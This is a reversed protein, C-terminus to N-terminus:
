SSLDKSDVDLEKRIESYENWWAKVLHTYEEACVDCLELGESSRDSTKEDEFRISIDIVEPEGPRGKRCRDCIFAKM